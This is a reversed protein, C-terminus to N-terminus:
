RDVSRRGREVDWRSREGIKRGNAGEWGPDFSRRPRSRARTGGRWDVEVSRRMSKAVSVTHEFTKLESVSEEGGKKLNRRAKMERVKRKCADILVNIEDVSLAVAICPISIALGIGFIWASVYSLPVEAQNGEGAPHPFEKVNIAFFAAVFSLPLFVVTVLLFHNNAQRLRTSPMSASKGITFVMITRGQRQTGTAQERAYRAEFANAHKQKLDLLDRISMYIRGAQDDMRTIDKLPNSITKEQEEFGKEVKRLQPHSREDKYITRIADRLDPLLYDQHKLVMKIIDLEDRIDKIEALLDTEAGVDLLKDFFQPQRARSELRQHSQLWESAARSAQSFDQFLTAEGDMAAGISSEFMDLFQFDTDGKRHRDFTGFCRGSITMALEYVNQVPDRTKSNIDEIIGELVNLPDNRPQRWRQPFSTVVLDKGLVWMWLQDVMFIKPDVNEDGRNQKQFRYVVQDCDRTHTDINHYFFQDLTRRVHLFSSTKTLHARILLEDADARVRHQLREPDEMAYQMARRGSDTEFHLYPMFLFINCSSHLGRKSPSAAAKDISARSHAKPGDKKQSKPTAIKVKKSSKSTNSSESLTVSATTDQRKATIGPAKAAPKSSTVQETTDANEATNERQHPQGQSQEHTGDGNQEAGAVAQADRYRLSRTSKATKANSTKTPTGLESPEEVIVAPHGPQEQAGREEPDAPTRHIVQCMPRMFRSHHMQGRHQHNFSTELAKYGEIDVAGEEIFRKTLLAECWAINNVPLHIWRFNTHKVNKPL